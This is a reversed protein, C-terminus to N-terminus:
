PTMGKSISKREMVMFYSKMLKGFPTAIKQATFADINKKFHQQIKKVDEHFAYEYLRYQKRMDNIKKWTEKDEKKNGTLSYILSRYEKTKIMEHYRKQTINVLSNYIKRGIEFRKALIDEQYQETKFRFQLIFHGM